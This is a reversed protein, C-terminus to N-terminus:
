QINITVKALQSTHIRKVLVYKIVLQNGSFENRGPVTYSLIIGKETKTVKCFSNASTFDSHTLATDFPGGTASDALNVTVVDGHSVTKEHNSAQLNHLVDFRITNSAHYSSNSVQYHIIDVGEGANATPSYTVALTGPTTIKVEGYRGKISDVEKNGNKPDILKLNLGRGNRPLYTGLFLETPNTSGEVAVEILPASVQHIIKATLNFTKIKRKGSDGTHPTDHVAIAIAINDEELHDVPVGTILGTGEDISMGKINPTLEYHLKGYGGIAQLTTKYGRGPDIDPLENGAPSVKTIERVTESTFLLTVNIKFDHHVSDVINLEVSAKKDVLDKAIKGSFSKRSKNFTIGEMQKKLKEKIMAENSIDYQGSGGNIELLFDYNYDVYITPPSTLPVNLKKFQTITLPYSAEVTNTEVNFLEVIFEFIKEATVDATPTGTLTGKKVSLGAPVNSTDETKIRLSENNGLLAADMLTHTYSMSQMCPPLNANLRKKDRIIFTVIVEFFNNVDSADRVLVTFTTGSSETIETPRGKFHWGGEVKVLKVGNIEKRASSISMYTSGSIESTSLECDYDKDVEADPLTITSSKKKLDIKQAM